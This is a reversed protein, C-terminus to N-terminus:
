AVEDKSCADLAGADLGLAGATGTLSVRRALRAQHFRNAGAVAEEDWNFDSRLRSSLIALRMTDAGYPEIVSPPPVVNGKPKSMTSAVRTASMGQRRNEFPEDIGLMGMDSRGQDLLASYSCTCSPTSSVVSTTTWPCGIWRRVRSPHGMTTSIRLLAPLLLQLLHLHGDHRHHPPCFGWMQSLNDRSFMSPWHTGRGWTSTRWLRVLLDEFPVPVDGRECHMM